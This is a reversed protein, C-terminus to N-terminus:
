EDRQRQITFLKLILDIETEIDEARLCDSSAFLGGHKCGTYHVKRPSDYGNFFFIDPADGAEAEFVILPDLNLNQLNDEYQLIVVNTDRYSSFRPRSGEFETSPGVLDMIRHLFLPHANRKKTVEVATVYGLSAEQLFRLEELLSTLLAYTTECLRTFDQIRFAQIKDHSLGNRTEVLQDLCEKAQTEKGDDDYFLTSLAPVVLESGQEKLWRLGERGFHIWTGFAPRRFQKEFGGGLSKPLSLDSDAELMRRCEALTVVGVFRAIREATKLIYQLRLAGPDMCEDTRLTKYVSAIPYPFYDVVKRNFAEEM